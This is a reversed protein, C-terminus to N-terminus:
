RTVSTGNTSGMDTIIIRGDNALTLDFHKRSVTGKIKTKLTNETDPNRGVTLHTGGPFAEWGSRYKLNWENASTEQMQEIAKQTMVVFRDTSDLLINTKQLTTKAMLESTPNPGRDFVYFTDTMDEDDPDCEIVTRLAGSFGVGLKSQIEDTGAILQDPALELPQNPQLTVRRELNVEPIGLNEHPTINPTNM